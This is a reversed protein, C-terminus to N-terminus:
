ADVTEQLIRYVHEDFNWPGKVAASRQRAIERAEELGYRAVMSGAQETPTFGGIPEGLIVPRERWAREHTALLDSKTM